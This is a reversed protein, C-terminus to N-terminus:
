CAQCKLYLEPLLSRVAYARHQLFSPALHQLQWCHRLTFRSIQLFGSNLLGSRLSFPLHFTWTPKYLNKRSEKPIEVQRTGTEDFAFLGAQHALLQRITIKDKGQQAFEPWYKSIREDYDFLLVCDGDYRRGLTRRYAQEPRRGM